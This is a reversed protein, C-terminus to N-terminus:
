VRDITADEPFGDNAHSTTHLDLSVTILNTQLRQQKTASPKPVLGGRHWLEEDRVAARTNKCAEGYAAINAACSTASRQLSIPMLARWMLSLAVPPLRVLVGPGPAWDARRARARESIRMPRMPADAGRCAKVQGM